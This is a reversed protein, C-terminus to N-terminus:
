MGGHCFHFIAVMRIVFALWKPSLMRKKCLMEREEGKVGILLMVSDGKSSLISFGADTLDLSM